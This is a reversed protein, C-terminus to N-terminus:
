RRDKKIGNKSGFAIIEQLIEDFPLVKVTGGRVYAEKPMGYVTASEESEAITYAGAKKLAVMGDAGDDGIGTLLVAMINKPNMVELASFFMEDVSPVFFRNSTNPVLKCVVKDGDRRFHLHKGGKGIIMKAPTLEEGNKAEVVKIKSISDLREAFKGTFTPPMHQVVCVPYPYNEPLSRAIAEILKPGGTSAGVLVYKKDDKPAFETPQKIVPTQVIAKKKRALLAIKNIKMIENVKFEFEKIFDAGATALRQDPKTIYDLAGLQLASMAIDGNEVAYTSVILVRTPNKEMISQLVDLGNKKPMEIDLTILDYQNELAKKEGEEGDKAVDVEFGLRELEKKLFRRVLASDDIVLAKPSKKM